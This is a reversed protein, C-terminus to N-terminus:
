ASEKILLGRFPSLNNKKKLRYIKWKCWILKGNPYGAAFYNAWPRTFEQENYLKKYVIHEM